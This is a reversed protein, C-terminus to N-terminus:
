YDIAEVGYSWVAEFGIPAVRTMRYGELSVLLAGHPVGHNPLDSLSLAFVFEGQSKM